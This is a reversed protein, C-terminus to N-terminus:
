LSTSGLEPLFLRSPEKGTIIRGMTRILIISSSSSSSCIDHHGVARANKDPSGKQAGGAAPWKQGFELGPTQPKQVLIQGSERGAEEGIIVILPGTSDRVTPKLTRGLLEATVCHDGMMEAM